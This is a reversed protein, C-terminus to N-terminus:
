ELEPLSHSGFGIQRRPREPTVKAVQCLIQLTAQHAILVYVENNQDRGQIRVSDYTEETIHGLELTLGNMLIVYFVLQGDEPLQAKWDLDLQRMAKILAASSKDPLDIDLNLNEM